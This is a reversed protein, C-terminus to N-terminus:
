ASGAAFSSPTRSPSTSSARAPLARAEAARRGLRRPAARRLAPRLGLRPNIEKAMPTTASRWSINSSYACSYGSDCNGSQAAATSAWSSRRAAADPRRDEPRRGPRGLRRRPHEGRRDQAPPRRDPLLGAVPRPRRRRRGAGRRQAPGPRDPRAPRGPLAQAARADAASRSTAGTKARATWDAMHVGNPVYLFAMRRPSSAAQAPCTRWLRHAPAMAELWPLAIATGLGRLVTRRSLRRARTM